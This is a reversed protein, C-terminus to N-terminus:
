EKKRKNNYLSIIQTSLGTMSATGLLCFFPIYNILYRSRGEFLLTFAICGLLALLIINREERTKEWNSLPLLLCFFLLFYWLGTIGGWTHFRKTHDLGFASGYYYTRLLQQMTDGERYSYDEALFNGEGGWFFSGDGLFWVAKETLHSLTGAFGYNQLRRVIEKKNKQQIESTTEHTGELTFTYDAASYSGIGLHNPHEGLGMMVFHSAPISSSQASQIEKPIVNVCIGEFGLLAVFAGILFCVITYPRIRTKASLIQLGEAIVIAILIIICQPKVYYGLVGLIGMFLHLTAGKKSFYQEPKGKLFLWFLMLPIWISLTDTYPVIIWGSLALLIVFSISSLLACLKGFLMRAVNYLLILSFDILLINCIILHWYIKADSEMGFVLMIKRFLLLLAKNNPFHIFYSTATSPITHNVALEKANDYCIQVDWGIKQYLRSAIFLQICFLGLVALSGLIFEPKLRSFIPHTSKKAHKVVKKQYVISLITILLWLILLTISTQRATLQDNLLHNYPDGVFWIKYFVVIGLLLLFAAPLYRLQKRNCTCLFLIAIFLVFFAAIESFGIPLHQYQYELCLAKGEILYNNQYLTDNLSNNKGMRILPTIDADGNPRTCQLVLYYRDVGNLELNGTDLEYYEIDVLESAPVEKQFLTEQRKTCISLRITPVTYPQGSSLIPIRISTLIGHGRLFFSQYLISDDSFAPSPETTNTKHVIKQTTQKGIKMSFASFLFAALFCFLLLALLCRKLSFTLGYKGIWNKIKKM